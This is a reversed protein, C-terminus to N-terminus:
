LTRLDKFYLATWNSVRCVWQPRGPTRQVVPLVFSRTAYGSPSRSHAM